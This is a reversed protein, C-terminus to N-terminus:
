CRGSSSTRALLELERFLVAWDTLENLRYKSTLGQKKRNDTPIRSSRANAFEKTQTANLFNTNLARISGPM